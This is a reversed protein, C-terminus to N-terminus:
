GAMPLTTGPLLFRKKTSVSVTDKDIVIRLTIGKRKVATISVEHVLINLEYSKFNELFLGPNRENV